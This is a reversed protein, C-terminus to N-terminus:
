LQPTCLHLLRFSDSADWAATIERAHELWWSRTVASVPTHGVAPLPIVRAQDPTSASPLSAYHIYCPRNLCYVIGLRGPLAKLSPSRHPWAVFM